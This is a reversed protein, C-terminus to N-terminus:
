AAVAKIVAFNLKIAESKASGAVNRVSIKFSGSSVASCWVQYNGATGVSAHNVIVVDTAAVATNTVTFTAIAADALEENNLVIEGSIKSLTVGTSKSTAQTVTGGAGTAYGVGASASSSKVSSASVVAGSSATVVLKNTAVAVDGTIDLTGAVLTNGSAATVTFKNTNVAVDGTVGLTGAIATNGSAATVNFKNTNVAVNGTVGLTSSLTAAGTVALTGAVATNGSAATVTFKDTNIAVNGSAAFTGTVSTNRALSIAGTATGNITVTGSGKADITMNENTGSSIAKVALGGAAAAGVVELGTAASATNANVKFTPNSSGNPGIAIANASTSTLNSIAAM